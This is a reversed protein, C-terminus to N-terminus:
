RLAAALEHYSQRLLGDIEPWDAQEGGDDRFGAHTAKTWPYRYQEHLM